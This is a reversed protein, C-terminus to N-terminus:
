ITKDRLDQYLKLVNKSSKKDVFDMAISYFGMKDATKFGARTRAMINNKLYKQEIMDQIAFILIHSIIDENYGYLTMLQDRFLRYTDIDEEIKIHLLEHILTSWTVDIDKNSWVCVTLPHSLWAFKHYYWVCHCVIYKKKFPSGFIEEIMNIIMEERGERWQKLNDMYQRIKEETYYPNKFGPLWSQQAEYQKLRYMEEFISDYAKIYWFRVKM